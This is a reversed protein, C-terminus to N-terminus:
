AQKHHIHSYPNLHKKLCYYQRRWGKSLWSEPSGYVIIKAYAKRQQKKKRNMWVCMYELLLQDFVWGSREYNNHTSLKNHLHSQKEIRESIKLLTLCNFEKQHWYAPYCLHNKEKYLTRWTNKKNVWFKSLWSSILSSNSM